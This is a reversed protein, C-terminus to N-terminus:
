RDLELAEDVPWGDDGIEIPERHGMDQATKKEHCPICLVQLNPEDDDGGKVLAVVHDLQFGDPYDTLKGCMACCGNAQAWMRLRRAQLKRGRLRGDSNNFKGVM